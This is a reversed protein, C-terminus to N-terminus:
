FIRFGYNFGAAKTFFTVAASFIWSLPNWKEAFRRWDASLWVFLNGLKFNAAQVREGRKINEGIDKSEQGELIIVWITILFYLYGKIFRYHKEPIQLCNKWSLYSAWAMWKWEQFEVKNSFCLGLVKLSGRSHIISRQIRPRFCSLNGMLSLFFNDLQEKTERCWECSM